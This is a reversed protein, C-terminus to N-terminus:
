VFHFDLEVHKTRAHFIPNNTIYTACINDCLLYPASSSSIKLEFLLSEVWALEVVGNAVVRYESETSLRSVVKQKSSAWPIVNAGLFICYGGISRKDDLCSAWDADTYCVLNYDLSPEM